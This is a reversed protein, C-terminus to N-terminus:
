PKTDSSPIGVDGLFRGCGPSEGESMSISRASLMSDFVSVTEFFANRLSFFFTKFSISTRLSRSPDIPDWVDVDVCLLTDDACRAPEEEWSLEGLAESELPLEKRWWGDKDTGAM